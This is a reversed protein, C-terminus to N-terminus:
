AGALAPAFTGCALAATFLAASGAEPQPVAGLLLAVGSGVLFAGSLRASRRLTLDAGAACAGLGAILQLALAGAGAGGVAQEPHRHAQVVAVAGIAAVIPTGVVLAVRQPAKMSRDQGLQCALAVWTLTSGSGRACIRPDGRHGVARIGPPHGCSRM